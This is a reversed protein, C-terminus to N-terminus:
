PPTDSAEALLKSLLISVLSITFGSKWNNKVHSFFQM